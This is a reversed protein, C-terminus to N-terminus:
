RAELRKHENALVFGFQEYAVLKLEVQHFVKRHHYFLNDFITRLCLVREFHVREALPKEEIARAKEDGVVVVCAAFM